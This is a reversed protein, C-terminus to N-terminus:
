WFIFEFFKVEVFFCSISLSSFFVFNHLCCVPNISNVFLYYTTKIAKRGIRKECDSWYYIIRIIMRIMRRRWNTQSTIMRRRWNTQSTIMGLRWNTQSTIVGQRWKTQSSFRRRKKNLDDDVVRTSGRLRSNLAWKWAPWGSNM